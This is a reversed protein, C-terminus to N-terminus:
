AEQAREKQLGKSSNQGWCKANPPVEGRGLTRAGVLKLAHTNTVHHFAVDVTVGKAALHLEKQLSVGVQGRHQLHPPAGLRRLPGRLPVAGRWVGGKNTEGVYQTGQNIKLM